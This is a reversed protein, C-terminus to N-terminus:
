AARPKEVQIVFAFGNGVKDDVDMVEVLKWGLHEVLEVADETVWVTHHGDSADLSGAAHREILESLTTRPRDKDFTREKHPFITFILGGDRVVRYWEKLAGITDHFHELVHSTLVYDLSGDAFPLTNGAALVDIRQATGCLERQEETYRSEEWKDVFLCDPLNFANHSSPGIEIGRLSDLYRHAMNSEPFRLPAAAPEPENAPAEPVEHYVTTPAPPLPRRMDTVLRAWAIAPLAPLAGLAQRVLELAPFHEGSARLVPSVTALVKEYEQEAAQLRALEVHAEGAPEERECALELFERAIGKEGQALAIRAIEAYPRWLITEATVLEQFIAFATELDGAEQKALGEQLLIEEDSAIAPPPPQYAPAPSAGPTRQIEVPRASASAALFQERIPRPVVKDGPAQRKRALAAAQTREIFATLQQEFIGVQAVWNQFVKGVTQSLRECAGPEDYWAVGDHSFEIEPLEDLLRSPIYLVPCGALVACLCTGSREASYLVKASHFRAILESLSVPAHNDIIEIDAPLRSFDIEERRIRGLYLLSRSRPPPSEPPLFLRPDHSVPTLLSLPQEPDDAFERSYHYVLDEDRFQVPQGTLAGSRNLMWRVVIDADYPNESVIEPYVVVPPLGAREHREVDRAQLLRADLNPHTESVNIFYAPYGRRNLADCLVHLSVVGSSNERYDAGFIYYPARESVFPFDDPMRFPWPFRSTM